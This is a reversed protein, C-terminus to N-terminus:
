SQASHVAEWLRHLMACVQDLLEFLTAPSATYGLKGVLILSTRLEEASARGINYFRAKDKPGARIFGESVRGPISVAARRMQRIWGSNETPPLKRRVRYVEVTLELAKHWVRLDQVKIAGM